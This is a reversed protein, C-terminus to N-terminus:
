DLTFALLSTHGWAQPLSPTSDSAPATISVGGDHVPLAQCPSHIYVWVRLIVDQGGGEGPGRVRGGGRDLAGM